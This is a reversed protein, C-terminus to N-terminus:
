FWVLHLQVKNLGAEVTFTAPRDESFDEPAFTLGIAIPDQTTALDYDFVSLEMLVAFDEREVSIAEVDFWQPVEAEDEVQTTFLVSQSAYDRIVVYLEPLGEDVTDEFYDPDYSLVEVADIVLREAPVEPGDCSSCGVLCAGFFVTWFLPAINRMELNNLSRVM